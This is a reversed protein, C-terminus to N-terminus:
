RERRAATMQFIAQANRADFALDLRGAEDRKRTIFEHFSGPVRRAVLTGDAAVLLREVEAARFATQLVRGSRSVEVEDKIPRGLRRQHEAVAHVDDVRDTAHNFAHGETAIWAMEPSEALLTEYDSVSPEAHQRDFCACLVPLLRAAEDFALSGTAALEALSAAAAPTLPDRSTALVRAVAMQFPASFREPHLESVFFQPLEAPLDASTYVHGTMGLGSLPYVESPRYGLPELLRAVSLRGAPLEGYPAAVTRLAGHDFVLKRGARLADGVYADAMPVRRRVDEFLLMALAMAVEGRGVRGTPGCLLGAPVELCQFLLDRRRAGICADLLHALTTSASATKM